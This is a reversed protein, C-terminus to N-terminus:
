FLSRTIGGDIQITTGTIYAAQESALFAVLAGYEEPKGLRKLPVNNLVNEWAKEETLGQRIKEDIDHTQRLRNTLFYGTAINNVTINDPALESSLTKALGIVGTRFANSLVLNLIPQKVATGTMNIIRGGGTKKMYPLVLRITRVVSLLTLEFAKQWEEDDVDSFTGPPPGGANNVLIDIKGFKDATKTVLNKLDNQKTVDCVLALVKSGSEKQIQAATEQLAKEERSCIVVNVGEMALALASAKGLGKSAALVIATKGKLGFNM